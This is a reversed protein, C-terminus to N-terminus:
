QDLLALSEYSRGADALAIAKNVLADQNDPDLRLAEDYSLLAQDINGQLYEAQGKLQYLDSTPKKELHLAIKELALSPEGARM